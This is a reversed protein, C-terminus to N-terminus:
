AQPADASALMMEIRVRNIKQPQASIVTFKANPLECTAGAPPISGMVTSLYGGLTTVGADEPLNVGILRNLEALEIQADAEFTAENVRKFMAPEVPEHEDSIDGVIQELIDEVTVLGATGGYEDLVIAIHIKQLKFDRLLERSPKSEPVYLPLRMVAKMEFKQLSQGLFRLLDRAYLVGVIQDLTGNFVPIRSHGSEEIIARIEDVTSNADIAVMRTRPTMIQGATTDRLEIVSEIMNREQEDVVGEKEGEEVVSMIEQEIQEAEPTEPAGAAHRVVENIGHMIPLLPTMALRLGHILPASMGVLEAGAYQSLSHPVAVSFFFSIVGAILAALTYAAARSAIREDMAALTVVVIATNFLMRWFATVVVLDDTHDVIREYWALKGHAQLFAELRVRPAERLAFTLTSFILSACSVFLLSAVTWFLNM